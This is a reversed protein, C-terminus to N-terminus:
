EHKQLQRVVKSKDRDTAGRGGVGIYVGRVEDYQVKGEQLEALEANEARKRRRMRENGSPFKSRFAISAESSTAINNAKKFHLMALNSETSETSLHQPNKMLFYHQRLLFYPSKRINCKRQVNDNHISYLRASNAVKGCEKFQHM